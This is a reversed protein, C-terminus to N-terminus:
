QDSEAKEEEEELVMLAGIGHYLTPTGSSNMATELAELIELKTAGLSMARRMHAAISQVNLGRYSIIAIHILERVKAPLYKGDKFTVPYLESFVEFFDPDLKAAYEWEPLTYGRDERMKKLIEEARM